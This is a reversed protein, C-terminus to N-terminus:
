RTHRFTGQTSEYFIDDAPEEPKEGASWIQFDDGRTEYGYRQGDFPDVPVPQLLRRSRWARYLDDVDGPLHGTDERYDDVFDALTKIDAEAKQRAMEPSLRATLTPTPPRKAMLRTFAIFGVPISAALTMGAAAIALAGVVGRAGGRTDPALSADLATVRYALPPHSALWRGLTMWATGLDHRQRALASLNVRPGHREGAALIALGVLAAGRDACVALGYRDCTYERAQSYASGLFPLALGPFLFWRWNLHGAKLHGLEHGIIMDRAQVNEGCADLLDSYLVIFRARFFRTALANLAGGAQMVYAAPPEKLGVRAALEEVRRHLDPFQDPGLRVASGRLHAVFAIQSFMLFVAILGAYIAGIISICIVFWLAISASVVLVLLPLETPWREVRIPEVPPADILSQM